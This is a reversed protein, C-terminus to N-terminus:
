QLLEEGHKTFAEVDPSDDYDMGIIDLAERIWERMREVLECKDAPPQAGGRVMQGLRDDFTTGHM